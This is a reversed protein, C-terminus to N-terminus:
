YLKRSCRSCRFCKELKQQHQNFLLSNTAAQNDICVFVKSCPTTITFLINIAEQVAHLEADYVEARNCLHCSGEKILFPQQNGMNYIAWGCGAAGNGLKSGDTYIVITHDLLSQLWKEHNEKPRTTKDPNPFKTKKVGEATSTTTRDELKGM